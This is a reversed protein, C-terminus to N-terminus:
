KKVEELIKEIRQLQDLNLREFNFRNLKEAMDRAIIKDYRGQEWEEIKGTFNGKGVEKGNKKWYAQERLSHLNKVVLQAPTTRVVEGIRDAFSVHIIVRDGKKLGELYESM